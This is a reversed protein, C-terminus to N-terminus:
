EGTPRAVIVEEFLTAAAEMEQNRVAKGLDNLKFSLEEDHLQSIVYRKYSVVADDFEMGSIAGPSEIFSRGQQLFKEFPKYEAKLSM